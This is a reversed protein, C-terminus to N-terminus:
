VGALRKVAYGAIMAGMVLPPAAISAPEGARVFPPSTACVVDLKDVGATKLERRLKRAFPDNKTKFIDTLEFDCDLRNGAGMASIVPIGARKCATILLIKNKLDDIADICYDFRGDGLIGDINDATVFESVVTVSAKPNVGHVRAAAVEAKNKGVDAVTCLIQRNLNTPEFADGDVLTLAGVGSRALVEAAAGGVGGLGVVIVRSQALRDFAQEGILSVTREFAKQM